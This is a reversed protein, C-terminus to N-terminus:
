SMDFQTEMKSQTKGIESVQAFLLDMNELIQEWRKEDKASPQEMAQLLFQTQASPKPPATNVAGRALDLSIEGGGWKM